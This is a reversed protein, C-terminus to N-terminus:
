QDADYVVVLIGILLIQGISSELTLDSNRDLELHYYRSQTAEEVLHEDKFFNSLSVVDCWHETVQKFIGVLTM